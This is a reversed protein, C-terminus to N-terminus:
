SQANPDISTSNNRKIRRKEGTKRDSGLLTSCIHGIRRLIPTIIKTRKKDQKTWRIRPENSKHVHRGRDAPSLPTAMNIKLLWSRHPVSAAGAAPTGTPEASDRQRDTRHRKKKEWGNQYSTTELQILFYPSSTCPRQAFHHPPKSGILRTPSPRTTRSEFSPWRAPPSRAARGWWTPM